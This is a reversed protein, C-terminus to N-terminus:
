NKAPNKNENIFRQVLLKSTLAAIAAGMAPCAEAGSRIVLDIPAGPSAFALAMDRELEACLMDYAEPLPREATIIALLATTESMSLVKKLLCIMMLSALQERGYRKAVPSPVLKQKVYNNIMAPTIIREKEEAFLSLSEELVLIVQDMYLPINPLEGWRPCHFALAAESSILM